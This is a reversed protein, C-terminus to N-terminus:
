TTHTSPFQHYIVFLAALIGYGNPALQLPAISFYELVDTFYSQLPLRGDVRMIHHIFVFYGEPPTNARCHESPLTPTCASSVGYKELQNLLARMTLSSMITSAAFEAGFSRATM